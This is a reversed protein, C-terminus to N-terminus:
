RREHRRDVLDTIRNEEDLYLVTYGARVLAVTIELALLSKGTAPRVFLANLTGREAGRSGNGPIWCGNV